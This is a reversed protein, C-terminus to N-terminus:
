LAELPPQLLPFGIIQGCKMGQNEVCGVRADTTPPSAWKIRGHFKLGVLGAGGGNLGIVRTPHLDIAHTKCAGQDDAAQGVARRSRPSRGAKLCQPGLIKFGQCAQPSFQDDEAATLFQAKGFGLPQDAQHRLTNANFGHISCRGTPSVVNQGAFTSLDDGCQQYLVLSLWNGCEAQMCSVDGLM